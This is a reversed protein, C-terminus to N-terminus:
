KLKKMRMLDLNLSIWEKCYDCQSHIEFRSQIPLINKIEGITWSTMADGLDKSQFSYEKQKKGCFPCFLNDKIIDFCGM